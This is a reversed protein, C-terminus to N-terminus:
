LASLTTAAGAWSRPSSRRTSHGEGPWGGCRRWSTTWTWCQIRSSIGSGARPSSTWRTAPRSHQSLLMVAVDPHASRIEAAARAGDDENRPPMRIDVVALDPRERAVAELLSPADGVTAVVEHGADRLLLALGERFLASDEAIVVRM